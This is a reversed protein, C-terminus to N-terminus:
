IEQSIKSNICAAFPQIDDDIVIIEKECDKFSEIEDIVSLITKEENYCPIIVSIKDM